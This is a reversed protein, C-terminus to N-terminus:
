TLVGSLMHCRKYWSASERGDSGTKGDEVEAATDQDEPLTQQITPYLMRSERISRVERLYM